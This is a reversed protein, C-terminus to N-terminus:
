ASWQPHYQQIHYYTDSAKKHTLTHTNHSSTEHFLQTMMMMMLVSYCFHLCGSIYFVTQIHSSHDLVYPPTYLSLPTFAFIESIINCFADNMDTTWVVTNPSSRKTHETLPICMDVFSPIFKRYYNALGIFSRLQHITKPRIFNTFQNIRADPISLSHNGVIYGLFEFSKCGWLCKSKKVTLGHQELRSLVSEIHSIHESWSNSFIVDDNYTSSFDELHLLVTQMLLLQFTAPANKM